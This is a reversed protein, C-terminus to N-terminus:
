KDEESMRKEIATNWVFGDDPSLGKRRHEKVITLIAVIALVALTTAILYVELM